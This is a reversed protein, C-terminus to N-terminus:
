YTTPEIGAQPVRWGKLYLSKVWFFGWLHPNKQTLTNLLGQLRHLGNKLDICSPLNLVKFNFGQVFLLFILSLGVFYAPRSSVFYCSTFAKPKKKPKDPNLF